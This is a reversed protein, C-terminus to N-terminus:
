SPLMGAAMKAKTKAAVKALRPSSHNSSYGSWQDGNKKTLFYTASVGKELFFVSYHTTSTKRGRIHKSNM